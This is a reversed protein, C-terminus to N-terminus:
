RSNHEFLGKKSALYYYQDFRHEMDIATKEAEEDVSVYVKIFGKDILNILNLKLIDDSFGTEEKIVVYPTVFYLEDLIDYEDESLVQARELYVTWIYFECGHFPCSFSLNNPYNITIFSRKQTGFIASGSFRLCLENGM